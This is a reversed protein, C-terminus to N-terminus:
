KKNLKAALLSFAITAPILLILGWEGIFFGALGGLAPGCMVVAINKALNRAYGKPDEKWSGQPRFPWVLFRLIDPDLSMLGCFVWSVAAFVMMVISVAKVGDM